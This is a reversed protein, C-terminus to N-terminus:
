STSVNKRKPGSAPLGSAGNTSALSSQTQQARSGNVLGWLATIPFHLKLVEIFADIVEEDYANAELWKRDAQLKGDYAFLLEIIEDVSNLLGDVLVPLVQAVGIVQNLDVNNWGNENINDGVKVIQIMAADISKFIRVVRSEELRKRWKMKEGFPKDKSTYARGGLTYSIERPM